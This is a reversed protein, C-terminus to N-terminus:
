EHLEVVNTRRLANKMTNFSSIMSTITITINNNNDTEEQEDAFRRKRKDLDIMFKRTKM